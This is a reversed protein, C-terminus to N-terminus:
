GKKTQPKGCIGIDITFKNVKRSNQFVLEKLDSTRLSNDRKPWM